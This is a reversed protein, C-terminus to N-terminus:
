SNKEIEEEVAKRFDTWRNAARQIGEFFKPARRFIRVANEESFKLKPDKRDAPDAWEWAVIIARAYLRYLIDRDTKDDLNELGGGALNATEIQVERRYLSNLAPDAPRLWVKAILEGQYSIECERGEKVLKESHEFAQFVRM